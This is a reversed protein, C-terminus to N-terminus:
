HQEVMVSYPYDMSFTSWPLAVNLWPGIGFTTPLFVLSAVDYHLRIRLEDGAHRNSCFGNTLTPCSRKISDASTDIFLTIRAPDIVTDAAGDCVMRWLDTVSMNTCSVSTGDVTDPHVAIWRGVDRTDHVLSLYAVFLIGFQFLVAVIGVLLPLILTLEVLSQGRDKHRAM